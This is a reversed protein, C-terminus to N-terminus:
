AASATSLAAFGSEGLQGIDLLSVIDDGKIALEAVLLDGDHIVDGVARVEDGAVDVIDCVADALLGVTRAASEIVLIVQIADAAAPACGLRARMEHVPVLWGRLNIVGVVYSPAGAVPTIPQMARIERVAGVPVGFLRGDVSFTVVQRDPIPAQSLAPPM